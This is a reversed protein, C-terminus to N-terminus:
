DGRWGIIYDSDSLSAVEYNEGTVPNYIALKDKFILAFLSGDPSWYGWHYGCLDYATQQNINLLYVGSQLSNEQTSDRGPSLWIYDGTPSWNVDFGNSIYFTDISSSMPPSLRAEMDGDRNYSLLYASDGDEHLALFHQSDRSWSQNWDPIFYDNLSQLVEGEPYTRLERFYKINNFDSTDQYAALQRTGDPSCRWCVPSPEEPLTKHEDTLINFLTPEGTHSQTANPPFVPYVFEDNNLWVVQPEDYESTMQGYFVNLSFSKHLRPNNGTTDFVRVGYIQDLTGDCHVSGCVGEGVPAAFHSMDPSFNGLGIYVGVGYAFKSNTFALVHSTQWDHRIGQIGYQGRFLVTGNFSWDSPPKVPESLCRQEIKWENSASEQARVLSSTTLVFATVLFLIISFIARM